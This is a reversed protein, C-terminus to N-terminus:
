NIIPIMTCLQISYLLHTFYLTTSNINIQIIQRTEKPFFLADGIYPLFVSLGLM